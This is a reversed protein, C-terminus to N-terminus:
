LPGSQHTPNADCANELRMGLCGGADPQELREADAHGHDGAVLLWSGEVNRALYPGAARSCEGGQRRGSGQRGVGARTRTVEDPDVCTPMSGRCTNASTVGVPLAVCTCISCRCGCASPRGRTTAITPSPMLSEGASACASTPMAMPVPVSIATSAPGHILMNICVCPNPAPRASRVGRVADYM